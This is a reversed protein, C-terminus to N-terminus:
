GNSIDESGISSGNPLRKRGAWELYVRRAEAKSPGGYDIPWHGEEPIYIYWNKRKVAM